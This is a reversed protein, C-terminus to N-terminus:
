GPKTLRKARRLDHPMPIRKHEGTVPQKLLGENGEEEQGDAIHPMGWSRAARAGPTIFRSTKASAAQWQTAKLERRAGVTTALAPTSTDACQLRLVLDRARNSGCSHSLKDGRTPEAQCRLPAALRRGDVIQEPSGPVCGAATTPLHVSLRGCITTEHLDVSRYGGRARRSRHDCKHPVVIPKFRHDRGGRRLSRTGM